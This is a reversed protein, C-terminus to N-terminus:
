HMVIKTYQVTTELYYVIEHRRWSPSPVPRCLLSNLSFDSGGAVVFAPLIEHLGPRTEHHKEAEGCKVGGSNARRIGTPRPPQGSRRQTSLVAEHRLDPGIPRNTTDLVLTSNILANKSRM